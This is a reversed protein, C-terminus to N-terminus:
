PTPAGARRTRQAPPYASAIEEGVPEVRLRARCPGGGATSERVVLEHPAVMEQPGRLDDGEIRAALLDVALSAIREKDPRITTLTPVSYRGEEIDDFGVVAVDEPVRLGREALVRMAGLAQLDSFCFVADPPNPADLLWRMASAGDSRRFDDGRAVLRDDYPVGHAALAMRYGQLRVHSTGHPRDPQVGIAAVRRRGLGLLHATATRAASVNDIAVHDAPGDSIREGLLVLPTEDRRAALDDHGLALPSVILGDILQGRIGNMLLQEREVEGDTQDILVTWGHRAAAAIVWRSLEAFYPLDLEPLGLAVIGTRSSRLSRASLNPRYNLDDIAQQVRTRTTPAVHLYGHVVNSVTKVSVGAKAAVDKLGVAARPTRTM